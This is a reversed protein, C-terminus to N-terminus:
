SRIKHIKAKLKARVRPALYSMERNNGFLIGDGDVRLDEIEVNDIGYGPRLEFFMPSNTKVILDKLLNLDARAMDEVEDDDIRIRVNGGSVLEDWSGLEFRARYSHSETLLIRQDGAMDDVHVEKTVKVRDSSAYELTLLSYGGIDQGVVEDNNFTRVQHVSGLQGRGDVVAQIQTSAANQEFSIRDDNAGYTGAAVVYSAQSGLQDTKVQVEGECASLALLAPLALAALRLTRSIQRATQQRM